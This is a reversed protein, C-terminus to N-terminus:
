EIKTKKQNRRHSESAAYIRLGDATRDPVAGDSTARRRPRTNHDVDRRAKMYIGSARVAFMSDGSRNANGAAPYFRGRHAIRGTMISFEAKGLARDVNILSTGGKGERYHHWFSKLAIRDPNMCHNPILSTGRLYAVWRFRLV